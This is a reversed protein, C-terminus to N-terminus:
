QRNRKYQSLLVEIAFQPGDPDCSIVEGLYTDNVLFVTVASEANLATDVLATVKARTKSLVHGVAIASKEQQVAGSIIVPANDQSDTTRLLRAAVTRLQRDSINRRQRM